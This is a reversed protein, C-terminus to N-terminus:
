FEAKKESTPGSPAPAPQAPLIYGSAGGPLPFPGQLKDTPSPVANPHNLLGAKQQSWSEKADGCANACGLDTKRARMCLQRAETWEGSHHEFNPPPPSAPVDSCWNPNLLPAPAAKPTAASPLQAETNAVILASGIAVFVVIATAKVFNMNGRKGQTDFRLYPM